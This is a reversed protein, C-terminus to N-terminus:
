YSIGLIKVISNIVNKHYADMLTNINYKNFLYMLKYNNNKIAIQLLKITRYWYWWYRKNFLLYKNIIIKNNIHKWLLIIFNNNNTKLMWSIMNYDIYNTKYKLYKTKVMVCKEHWFVKSCRKVTNFDYNDMNWVLKNINQKSTLIVKIYWPYKKNLINKDLNFVKDLWYKTVINESILKNYKNIEKIKYKKLLGKDISGVNNVQKKLEIFDNSKINRLNINKWTLSKTNASWKMWLVNGIIKDSSSQNIKKIKTNSWTNNSNKNNSKSKDKKLTWDSTINVTWKNNIESIKNNQKLTNQIVKQPNEKSFIFFWANWWIIILIFVVIGYKVYKPLDEWWYKINDIM